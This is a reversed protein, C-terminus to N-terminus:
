ATPLTYSHFPPIGAAVKVVAAKATSKWTQASISGGGGGDADGDGGGGDAEGDGGGGDADGDGGGGDADGDGDGSPGGAALQRDV